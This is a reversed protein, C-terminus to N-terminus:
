SAKRGCLLLLHYFTRFDATFQTVTTLKHRDHASHLVSIRTHGTSIDFSNLIHVYIKATASM